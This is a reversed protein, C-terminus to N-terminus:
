APGGVRLAAAVVAVDGTRNVGSGDRGRVLGGVACALLAEAAPMRGVTRTCARALAFQWAAAAAFPGVDGRGGHAAIAATLARLPVGGDSLDSLARVIGEATDVGEMRDRARHAADNLAACLLGGEDSLDAHVTRRDAGARAVVDEEAWGSLGREVLMATAAALVAKVGRARADSGATRHPVSPDDGLAKARAIRGEAGGGKVM